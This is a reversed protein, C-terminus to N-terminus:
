KVHTISNWTEGSLIRKVNRVTTNFENAIEEYNQTENCREIIKLVAEKTLVTKQKGKFHIGTVKSWTKGNVIESVRSPIMNHKESIQKITLKEKYYEDVIKLIEEKTRKSNVPNYYAREERTITKFGTVKTQIRGSFIDQIYKIPIDLQQEIQSNSLGDNHLKIILEIDEKTYKQGVKRYQNYFNMNNIHTLDQRREGQIIGRLLNYSCEFEETMLIIDGCEKFRKLIKNVEQQTIFREPVSGDEGGFTMNYGNSNEWNIYTNYYKIWYKEKKNLEENNNSSDIIFWQINDWGYKRIANYFAVNYNQKKPNFASQYHQQKRQEFNKTRGIYSKGNPFLARYIVNNNKEM